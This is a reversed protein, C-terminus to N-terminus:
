CPFSAQELIWAASLPLISLGPCSGATIGLGAGPGKCILIPLDLTTWFCPSQPGHGELGHSSSTQPSGRGIADQELARTKGPIAARVSVPPLMREEMFM